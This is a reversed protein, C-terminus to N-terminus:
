ELGKIENILSSSGPGYRISLDEDRGTAICRFCVIAPLAWAPRDDLRAVLHHTADVAKKCLACTRQVLGQNCWSCRAAPLSREGCEKSIAVARQRASGFSENGAAAQLQALLRREWWRPHLEGFVGRYRSVDAWDQVRKRAFAGSTLGLRSRVEDSDLLPGPYSLLSQLVWSAFEPGKTPVDKQLHEELDSLEGENIDLLHCIAKASEKAKRPHDELICRISRFGRALDIIQIGASKRESLRGGIQSKLLTFDFLSRIRPNDAVYERLRDETTVLVIPILIRERIAAALMGGRYSVPADGSLAQDDLRFDLLVVDIEDREIRALIQEPLADAKPPPVADCRVGYRSLRELTTRSEDDDDVALARVERRDDM